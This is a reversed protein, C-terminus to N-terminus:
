QKTNLFYKIFAINYYANALGVGLLLLLLAVFEIGTADGLTSFITNISGSIFGIITLFIFISLTRKESWKWSAVLAAKLKQREIVMFMPTFALKVFAYLGLVLWLLFLLFTIIGITEFTLSTVFLFFGITFYLFMAVIIFITLGIIEGAKSINSFIGKLLAQKGNILSSYVYILYFGLGISIFTILGIVM